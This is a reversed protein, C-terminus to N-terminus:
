KTLTWLKEVVMEIVNDAYMYESNWPRPILIGIGGQSRWEQINSDKDDYLIKNPSALWKKEKAFAIRRKLLPWHRGICDSKGNFCGGDSSPTSLISIPGGIGGALALLTEAEPTPHLNAWFKYSDKSIPDWFEGPTIGWLKEIDWVGKSEPSDYTTLPRNHAEHIGRNFDILVGDMDFIHQHTM